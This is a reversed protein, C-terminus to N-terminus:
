YTARLNSLKTRGHAENGTGDCVTVTYGPYTTAFRTQVWEAVTADGKLMRRYPYSPVDDKDSRVDRGRAHDPGGYHFTVAFGEVSEIKKEVFSLRPM